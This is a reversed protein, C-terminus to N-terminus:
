DNRQVLTAAFASLQDREEASIDTKLAEALVGKLGKEWCSPRDHLYAGRGSLKGTLDVKVGDTTRVIRILSRKALVEHCGVCTRFPVHKKPPNKKIVM